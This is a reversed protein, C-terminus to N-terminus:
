TIQQYWYFFGHKECAANTCGYEWMNLGMKPNPYFCASSWRGCKPCTTKDPRMRGCRTCQGDDDFLCTLRHNKPCLILAM